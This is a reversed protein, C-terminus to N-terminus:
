NTTSFASPVLSVAISKSKSFNDRPNVEGISPITTLGFTVLTAMFSIVTALEVMPVTLISRKFTKTLSPM